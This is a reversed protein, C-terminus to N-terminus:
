ARIESPQQDHQDAWELPKIAVDEHIRIHSIYPINSNKYYRRLELKEKQPSNATLTALGQSTPVLIIHNPWEDILWDIARFLTVIPKRHEECCRIILEFISFLTWEGSTRLSLLFHVMEIVCSDHGSDESCICSLPFMITGDDSQRRYEDILKLEDRAWYRVGQLVSIVSVSSTYRIMQGTTQNQLIAETSRSSRRHTWKVPVANQRFDTVSTFNTGTPSFVDFFLSKCHKNRMILRSFPVMANERLSWEGNVPAPQRLLEDVDPDETNARLRRGDRKLVCLHLLINRYHYLTTPAPPAGRRTISIGGEQILTNIEGAKLGNPFDSVAKLIRHLGAFSIARM